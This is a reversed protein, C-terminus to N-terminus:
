EAPQALPLAAKRRRDALWYFLVGVGFMAAASLVIKLIGLLPHPDAANPVLTCGIAIISSALGTWGLVIGARVGGRPRWVGPVDPMRAAKLYGAFMFVYPM